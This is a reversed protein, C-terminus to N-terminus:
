HTQQFMASLQKKESPKVVYYWTGDVMQGEGKVTVTEFDPRGNKIVNYMTFADSVDINTQIHKKALTLLSPINKVTSMNMGKDLLAEVVQRQRNNRGLDGKPDEHRMRVYALAKEGNLANEGEPFIFSDFVFPFPNNVNVGGLEDVVDKFGEMNVKVYYDVDINLFNEVTRVTLPIGGYRYAHNIKEDTGKGDIHVRTDRPIPMVKAKNHSKDLNVVMLVDSRGTDGPREDVGMVLVNFSHPQEKASTQHQYVIGFGATGLLLMCAALIGVKYKKM